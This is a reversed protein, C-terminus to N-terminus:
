ASEVTKEKLEEVDVGLVDAIRQITDPRAGRRNHELDSLYPQSVQASVALFSQTVGKSQRVERIRYVAIKM